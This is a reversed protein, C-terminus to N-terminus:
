DTDRDTHFEAWVPYHDSVTKTFDPTLGYEQDFRLVGSTGTYDESTTQAAFVIRDYTNDSVAVTTDLNDGVAWVFTTDRLGTTISESFYSGDANFDGLIIVDDDEEFYDVASGMVYVLSAIENVADDPKIHVNALAFDFNGARFGAVFPEREFVDSPDPFVYSSGTFTVKNPNYIFAYQEKSSTRGLRESQIGEYKDGEAENIRQLFYDLTTESIDRIEQIAVIDFKRVTDVLVDMVEEKARKSRGFVQINFSAIKITQELPADPGACANPSENIVEAISEPQKDPAQIGQEITQSPHTEPKHATKQWSLLAYGIGAAALACILYKKIGM